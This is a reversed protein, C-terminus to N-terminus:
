NQLFKYLLKDTNTKASERDILHILCLEQNNKSYNMCASYAREFMQQRKQWYSLKLATSNRYKRSFKKLADEAIAKSGVFDPEVIQMWENIYPKTCVCDDVIVQERVLTYTKRIFFNRKIRLKVESAENGRIKSIVECLPLKTIKENNVAIIEDGVKIGSKQAPKNEILGVVIIKKNYTDQALEAGIGFFEEAFSPTMFFIVATFLLLFLKRM